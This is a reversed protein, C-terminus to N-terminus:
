NELPFNKQKHSNEKEMEKLMLKWTKGRKRPQYKKFCNGRASKIVPTGNVPRIVLLTVSM